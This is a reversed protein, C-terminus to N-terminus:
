RYLHPYFGEFEDPCEFDDVQATALSAVGALLLLRSIHLSSINQHCHVNQPCWGTQAQMAVSQIDVCDRYGRDAYRSPM